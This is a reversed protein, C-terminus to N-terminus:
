AIGYEERMEDADYGWVDCAFDFAKRPCDEYVEDARTWEGNEYWGCNNGLDEDAYEISFHLDPYQKELERYIPLPADWATQFAITAGKDGYDYYVDWANWKTGWNKISWDYWNDAGYLEREKQGINGKYINDPMPILKNFDFDTENEDETEKGHVNELLKKISDKSGTITINTQVWNPM